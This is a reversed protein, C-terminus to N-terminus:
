GHHRAESTLEAAALADLGARLTRVLEAAYRPEGERLWLELLVTRAALVAPANSETRAVAEHLLSALATLRWAEAEARDCRQATLGERRPREMLEAAIRMAEAAAGREGNALRSLVGRAEGEDSRAFAIIAAETTSTPVSRTEDHHKEM